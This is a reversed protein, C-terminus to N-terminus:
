ALCEDKYRVYVHTPVDQLVTYSGRAFYSQTQKCMGSRVDTDVSVPSKYLFGGLSGLHVTLHILLATNIVERKLTCNHRVTVKYDIGLHKFNKVCNKVSYLPFLTLNM